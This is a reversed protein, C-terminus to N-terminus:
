HRPIPATELAPPMKKWPHGDKALDFAFEYLKQMYETDFPDEPKDVFDEPIFALNFDLRDRYTELYIQYLDGLGQTRILSSLARQAVKLTKPTVQDYHPALRANRIVYVKPRSPIELRAVIEDFDLGTPYLFVQSTAGGDVHMEDYSEGDAEVEILVPPFAGPISASALLIRRIL